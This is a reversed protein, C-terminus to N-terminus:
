ELSLGLQHYCGLTAARSRSNVRCDITHYLTRTAWSPSKEGKLGSTMEFALDSQMGLWAGTVGIFNTGAKKLVWKETKWVSNADFALSSTALLFAIIVHSAFKM